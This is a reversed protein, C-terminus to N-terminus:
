ALDRVSQVESAYDFSGRSSRASSLLPVQARGSIQPSSSVTTSKRAATELDIRDVYTHGIASSESVTQASPQRFDSGVLSKRPPPFGNAQNSTPKFAPSVVLDAPVLCTVPMELVEGADLSAYVPLLPNTGRNRKQILTDAQAGEIDLVFNTNRYERRRRTDFEPPPHNIDATQLLKNETIFRRIPRPQFQESLREGYIFYEPDLPNTKRTSKYKSPYDDRV